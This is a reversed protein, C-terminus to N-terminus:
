RKRLTNKNKNNFPHFIPSFKTKSNNEHMFLLVYMDCGHYEKNM